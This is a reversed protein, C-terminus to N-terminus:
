KADRSPSCQRRSVLSRVGSTRWEGAVHRAVGMESRAGGQNRYPLGHSSPSESVSLTSASQKSDRSPAKYRSWTWGGGGSSPAM